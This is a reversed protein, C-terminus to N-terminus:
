GKATDGAAKVAKHFLGGTTIYTGIETLIGGLVQTTPFRGLIHGALLFVSGITTKRGDLFDWLQKLKEMTVVLNQPKNGDHGYGM